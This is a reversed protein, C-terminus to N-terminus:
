QMSPRKFQYVNNPISKLKEKEKLELIIKKSAEIIGYMELELIGFIISKGDIDFEYHCLHNVTYNGIAYNYAIRHFKRESIEHSKKIFFKVTQEFEEIKAKFLSPFIDNLPRYFLRQITNNDFYFRQGKNFLKQEEVTMLHSM